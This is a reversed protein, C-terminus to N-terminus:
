FDEKDNLDIPKIPEIYPAERKLDRLLGEAWELIEGRAKYDSAIADKILVGAFIDRERSSLDPMDVLSVGTGQASPQGEYDDGFEKGMANAISPFDSKMWRAITQHAILTLEKAITRYSKYSFGDKNSKSKVYNKFM